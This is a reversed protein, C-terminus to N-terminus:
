KNRESNWYIEEGENLVRSFVFLFDSLRNIYALTFTNLKRSRNLAVMRREVRRCVTRALHCFAGAENGGPLIFEKLPKLTENYRDLHEELATIKEQSVIAQGLSIEGGIDFLVHQIKRVSSLEAGDLKTALVGIVSNLEDVDGQVHILLDDKAIRSGDAMGTEGADGTRTYIKTLRNAMQDKHQKM